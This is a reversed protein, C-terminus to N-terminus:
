CAFALSPGSLVQIFRYFLHDDRFPHEHTVHHLYHHEMLKNGLEVAEERDDCDV